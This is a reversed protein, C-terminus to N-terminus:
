PIIVLEKFEDRMPEGPHADNYKILATKIEGVLYYREPVNSDLLKFFDKDWKKGTVEIMFAHKVVSYKGYIGDFWADPRSLRDTFVLKRWTLEPEGLQFNDNATLRFKLTATNTKLSPDRLLVIPLRLHRQGAKIMYRTALQPDSFARYHQDPIANYAGPVTEQELKLSRDQNSLNGVTYLDFYVTDTKVQDEYYFFTQQKLTDTLRRDPINIWTLEPGFQLRAVDKYLLYNDQKCSVVVIAALSLILYRFKKM